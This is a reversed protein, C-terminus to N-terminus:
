IVIKQDSKYIIYGSRENSSKVSTIQNKTKESKILWTPNSDFYKEIRNSEKSLFYIGSFSNEKDKIQEWSFQGLSIDIVANVFDIGTSLEVLDSGIFDGGMRSGIEILFIEQDDRIKFELHGAGNTVQAAKLIKITEDIIRNKLDNSISSPQHHELEVFYPPDTIIKDTIALVRHDGNYSISEVSIEKGTIYEEAIAEKKLSLDIAQGISNKLEDKTNVIEVGLSGSRDSPKVILPFNCNNCLSDIEFDSYNKTFVISKPSNLNNQILMRRMAGKDTTLFATNLSNGILNLESAIASIVPICIDTAITIIGDIGIEKCKDLILDKELVSIPYFKSAYNKCVAHGDDWAFCHVEIGRQEAKQVLPLQLYSGGLVALKKM